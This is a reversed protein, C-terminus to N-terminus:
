RKERAIEQATQELSKVLKKTEYKYKYTIKKGKIELVLPKSLPIRTVEYATTKNHSGRTTERMIFKISQKDTYKLFVSSDKYKSPNLLRKFLASGAKNVAVQKNAGLYRGGIFEIGSGVITFSRCTKTEACKM